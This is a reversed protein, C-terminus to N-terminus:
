FHILKVAKSVSVTIVFFPYVELKVAKGVIDTIAFFHFVKAAAFNKSTDTQIRFIEFLSLRGSKCLGDWSWVIWFLEAFNNLLFQSLFDIM